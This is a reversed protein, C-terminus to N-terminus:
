GAEHPISLVISTKDRGTTAPEITGLVLFRTRNRPNDEIQEAVLNLGYEEAAARNAIAAAGEEGAAVEAARATTSVEVCEAGPLRDRLWERCQATAQPMTYLRRIESLERGRSLLHHHIEVYTEACIRLSTQLFRDLTWTVVGETSNEVPVVGLQARGKEVE